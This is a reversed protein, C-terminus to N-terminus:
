ITKVIVKFKTSVGAFLKAEISYEGANKIPDKLVIQKKDINLGQKNLGEAIEKNTVSGFTKGNEGGKVELVVSVDKLKEALSIAAQKDQEYHYNKADKAQKNLNLATNDAVVAKKNKLLFNKAFGDSVEVVDGKKGTGKVDALLVVKM